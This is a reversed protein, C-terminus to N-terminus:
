VERTIPMDVHYKKSLEYASKSTTVGEVVMETEKLIEKV